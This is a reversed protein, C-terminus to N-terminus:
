PPTHHDFGKRDSRQHADRSKKVAADLEEKEQLLRYVPSANSHIKAKKVRLALREGRNQPHHVKKIM